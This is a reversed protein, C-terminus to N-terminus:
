TVKIPALFRDLISVALVLTEPYLQLKGHLETLWRVAEDRQAPSIDTDQLPLLLPWMEAEDSPPKAKMGASCVM